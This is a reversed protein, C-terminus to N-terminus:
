KKAPAKGTSKGPTVPKGTPATVPATAPGKGSPAAGGPKPEKGAETPATETAAATVPAAEAKAEELAKLKELEKKLKENVEDLQVKLQDLKEKSVETKEELIEKDYKGAVIDANMEAGTKGEVLVGVSSCSGVITKVLAKLTKALSADQKMKSIRIVQEISLNAVKVKDPTGSGKELKAEKKILEATPPSGVTIEYSKDKEVNIEVPVKIGQFSSTKQNIKSIVDGISIKMPGLTQALQPTPTAKGGEVIVQIKQGM